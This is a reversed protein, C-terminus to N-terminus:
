VTVKLWAFSGPPVANPQFPATRAVMQYGLTFGFSCSGGRGEGPRGIPALGDSKTLSAKSSYGNVPSRFRSPSTGIHSRLWNSVFNIRTFEFRVLTAPNADDADALSAGIHQEGIQAENSVTQDYQIYGSGTCYVESHGVGFIQGYGIGVEIIMRAVHYTRQEQGALQTPSTPQVHRIVRNHTVAKTSRYPNFTLCENQLIETSDLAPLRKQLQVTTLHAMTTNLIVSGTNGGSEPLEGFFDTNLCQFGKSTRSACRDPKQDTYYYPACWLMTFEVMSLSASTAGVGCTVYTRLPQEPRELGPPFIM